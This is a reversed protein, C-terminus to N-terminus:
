VGFIQVFDTRRRYKLQKDNTMVEAFISACDPLWIKGNIGEEM